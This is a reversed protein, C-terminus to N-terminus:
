AQFAENKHANRPFRWPNTCCCPGGTKSIGLALEFCHVSCHLRLAQLGPGQDEMGQRKTAIRGIMYLLPHGRDFTGWRAIRLTSQGGPGSQGYRFYHSETLPAEPTNQPKGLARFWTLYKRCARPVGAFQRGIQLRKAFSFSRSCWPQDIKESVLSGKSFLWFIRSLYLPGRVVCWGWLLGEEDPPTTRPNDSGLFFAFYAGGGTRCKCHQDDIKHPHHTSKATQLYILPTGM